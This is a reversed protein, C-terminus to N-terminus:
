IAYEFRTAQRRIPHTTINDPVEAALNMIADLYEPFRKVATAFSEMADAERGLRMQAVGLNNVGEATPLITEAWRLENAAAQEQSGLLLLLTGRFFARRWGEPLPIPGNPELVVQPNVSLPSAQELFHIAKVFEERFVAMNVLVWAAAHPSYGTTMCLRRVKDYSHKRLAMAVAARTRPLNRSVSGPYAYMRYGSEKLHTFTAGRSIVRLLVDFSEPGFVLPDYGGATRFVATRFAVQTDGPLYNREFLRVPIAEFRLFHPIELHRLFRGTPGDHLDVTDTVVDCGQRLAKLLRYTRGPLWEDDADLWAAYPTQVADLGAQRAIPVGGPDPARIVHIKQGAIRKARDVTDDTSHDDVLLVGADEGICSRVAREITEAANRAAIMITLTNKNKSVM